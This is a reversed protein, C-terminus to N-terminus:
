LVLVTIKSEPEGVGGRKSKNDSTVFYNSDKIYNLEINKHTLELGPDEMKQIITYPFKKKYFEPTISNLIEYNKLSIEQDVDSM